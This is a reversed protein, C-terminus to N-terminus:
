PVRHGWSAETMAFWDELEMHFSCAAKLDSLRLLDTTGVVPVIGSPHRVLWGLIIQAPTRETKEVLRSVVPSLREQQPGSKKFFSGLPSWSMAAIKNVKMFDLTGDIMPSTHTVSFELQNWLPREEGQFLELQSTTFNSVGWGKIKGEERLECLTHVISEPDMLPSPRHLLLGDLYETQLNRLSNEVSKRIHQPSYNYHKVSAAAKPNPYQIGCKSVWWVDERSIDTEAFAQGFARETTFDGYIDAHDFAFVGRDLCGEIQRSMSSLSMDKGWVGWNMTGAIIDPENM